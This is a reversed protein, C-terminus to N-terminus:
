NILLEMSVYFDLHFIRFDLYYKFLTSSFLELNNFWYTIGEAKRFM